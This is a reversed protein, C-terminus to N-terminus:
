RGLLGFIRAAEELWYTVEEVTSPEDDIQLDLFHEGLWSMAQEDLPIDELCDIVDDHIEELLAWVEQPVVIRVPTDPNDRVRMRILNAAEVYKIAIRGPQHGQEPTQLFPRDRHSEIADRFLGDMLIEAHSIFELLREPPPSLEPTDHYLKNRTLHFRRYLAPDFLLDAPLLTAAQSTLDWFKESPRQRPAGNESAFEVLDRLALEVANDCLVWAIRRGAHENLGALAKAYGLVELPGEAFTAGLPLWPASQCKGDSGPLDDQM